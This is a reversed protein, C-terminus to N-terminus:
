GMAAIVSRRAQNSLEALEAVTESAVDSEEGMLQHCANIVREAQGDGMLDSAIEFFEAKAEQNKALIWQRGLLVLDDEEPEPLPEMDATVQKVSVGLKKTLFGAIHRMYSQSRPGPSRVKEISGLITRLVGVLKDKPPQWEEEFHIAWRRCISQVVLDEEHGVEYHIEADDSLPPVTGARMKKVLTELAIVVTGDLLKRDTMVFAEYIGTETAMWIPILEETKFKEGMYALSVSQRQKQNKKALKGRRKQDRSRRDKAM